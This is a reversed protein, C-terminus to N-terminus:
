QLFGVCWDLYTNNCFDLAGTWTLTDGNNCGASNGDKVWMLGTRVDTVTGDGNDIYAPQSVAPAYKDDAGSPGDYDETNQGTDPLASNDVNVELLAGSTQGATDYVAAKIEIGEEIRYDWTLWDYEYPSSTDTSVCVGEIYFLAKKIGRDDRASVSVVATNYVTEYASPSTFSVSPPDDHTDVNVTIVDSATCNKENVAKAEITTRRDSGYIETNWTCGYPPATDSSELSGDIYFEVRSVAINGPGPSAEATIEVTGSVTAGDEPSTIKIEPSKFEAVKEDLEKVDQKVADPVGFHFGLSFVAASFLLVATILVNKKM